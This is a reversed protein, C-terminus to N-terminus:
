QQKCLSLGKAIVASLPVKLPPDLRVGMKTDDLWFPDRPTLEQYRGAGKASGNVAYVPGGDPQFTVENFDCRLTGAQASFPWPSVDAASVRQTPPPASPTTQGCGAALTVILALPLM